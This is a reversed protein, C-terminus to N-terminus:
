VQDTRIVGLAAAWETGAFGLYGAHRNQTDRVLHEGPLDAVEVCNQPTSYSSKRFTLEDIHLHM